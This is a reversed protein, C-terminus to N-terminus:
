NPSVGVANAAADHTGQLHLQVNKYLVDAILQHGAARFHGNNDLFLPFVTKSLERFDPSFNVCRIGNSVAWRELTEQPMTSYVTDQRFQWYDRGAKWEKAHVQLGYPYVTMWFDVGHDKLLDRTLLLYKHTLSWNSDADIYSARLLAYKDHRIDGSFNGQRKMLELQPTIRIRIFNYLRMNDKFWDKVVAIPGKLLGEPEGSPSVGVPVGNEDFRATKTYTIDDHVDSLDFNLIVLDPQLQLGYNKLYLFELLSSYSGVGANIVEFKKGVQQLKEELRKSFTEHSFVGDGETFSDGVMLIRFTNAPKQLSYEKDRLGLSNIQYDTDFETTKYRGVANPKFRHHLVNDDQSYFYRMVERPEIMRVVIELIGVGFTISILTLLAGKFVDRLKSSSAEQTETM